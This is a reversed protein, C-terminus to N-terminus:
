YCILDLPPFSFTDNLARELEFKQVKLSFVRRFFMFASPIGVVPSLVHVAISPLVKDTFIRFAQIGM